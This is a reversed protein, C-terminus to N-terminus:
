HGFGDWLFLFKLLITPIQPPKVFLLTFLLLLLTSLSLYIWSFESSGLIALCSLFAKKFSRHLSISSVISHSLSSIEELFDYSDLLSENM